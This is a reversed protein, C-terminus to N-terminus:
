VNLSNRGTLTMENSVRDIALVADAGEDCAEIFFKEPTTHRLSFVSFTSPLVAFTEDAECGSERTNLGFVLGGSSDPQSVNLWCCRSISLPWLSFVFTCHCERDCWSHNPAALQIMTNEERGVSFFCPVLLPKRSLSPDALAHHHSASLIKLFVKVSGLEHM